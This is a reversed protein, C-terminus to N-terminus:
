DRQEVPRGLAAVFEFREGARLGQEGGARADANGARRALGCEVREVGGRAYRIRGGRLTRSDEHAWAGLGRGRQDSVIERACAGTCRECGACARKIRSQRLESDFGHAVAHVEFMAAHLAFGCGCTEDARGIAVDDCREGAGDRAPGIACREVGAGVACAAADNDGCRFGARM